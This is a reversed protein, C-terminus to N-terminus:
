FNCELGVSIGQMWITSNNFAFAPHTGTAVPPPFQNPDLHTDIQDGPRVVNSLILITYGVNVRWIPTLQYHLNAGFEPLVGFQTRTFTGINSKLALIGGSNVVPTVGPETVTTGGNITVRQSVGGLAVKALLDLSWPGNYFQANLGLQGGNFFNRTQFSDFISFTTGVPITSQPDISTTNTNVQLGEGLFLYRYGALVDIRRFEDAYIARRGNIDFGDIRSYTTVGITGTVVNPFAILDADNKNTQTNFFPRALIPSGGSSAFFNDDNQGLFFFSGEIGCMQCPDCWYGVTFRGGSRAATGVQQNGFLIVAGPLVGAEAQPTNDPSTTVLPPTNAGRVWWLLYEARGYLGIPGCGGFGCCPYDYGGQDWMPGGDDFAPEPFAQPQQQNSPPLEEQYNATNYRPVRRAPPGADDEESFRRAPQRRGPNDADYQSIRDALDDFTAATARFSLLVGCLAVFVALRRM